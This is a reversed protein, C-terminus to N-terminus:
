GSSTTYSGNFPDGRPGKLSEHVRWAKPSSSPLSTRRSSSPTVPTSSSGPDNGRSEHRLAGLHRRVGRRSACRPTLSTDERHLLLAARQESECCAGPSTSPVPDQEAFARDPRPARARRRLPCARPHRALVVIGAQRFPEPHPVEMSVVTPRALTRSWSFSDRGSKWLGFETSGLGRQSAGLRITM